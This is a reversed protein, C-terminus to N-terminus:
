VTGRKKSWPSLIINNLSPFIFISSSSSPPFHHLSLLHLFLSPSSISTINLCLFSSHPLPLHCWPSSHCFLSRASDLPLPLLLSPVISLHLTKDHARLTIGVQCLPRSDPPFNCSTVWCIFQGSLQNIVCVQSLQVCVRLHLCMSLCVQLYLFLWCMAAYLKWARLSILSQFEACVCMWIKKYLGMWLLLISFIQFLNLKWFLLNLSPWPKSMEWKSHIFM